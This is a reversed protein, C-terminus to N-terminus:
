RKVPRTSEYSRIAATGLAVVVNRDPQVALPGSGILLYGDPLEEDIVMYDDHSPTAREPEGATAIRNGASDRIEVEDLGIIGMLLRLAVTPDTSPWNERMLIRYADAESRSRAAASRLQEARNVLWSTLVAGAVFVVLAVVDATDAVFFTNFPPVLFWNAALVAVVAAAVAVIVNALIAVTLVEVFLVLLVSTLTFSDVQMGLVITIPILLLVVVTAAIRQADTRTTSIM